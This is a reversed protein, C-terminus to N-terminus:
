EGLVFKKLIPILPAIHNKDTSAYAKVFNENTVRTNTVWDFTPFQETAQNPHSPEFLAVRVRQGGKVNYWSNSVTTLTGVWYRAPDPSGNLEASLYDTWGALTDYSEEFVTPTPSLNNASGGAANSINSIEGPSVGAQKFLIQLGIRGQNSIAILSLGKSCDLTESEAACEAQMRGLAFAAGTVETDGGDTTLYNGPGWPDGEAFPVASSQLGAPLCKLLPKQRSAGGRLSQAEKDARNLVSTPEQAADIVAQGGETRSEAVELMSRSIAGLRQLTATESGLFGQAASSAATVKMILPDSPFDLGTDDDGVSVAEDPYVLWENTNNLGWANCIPVFYDIKRGGLRLPVSAAKGDRPLWADPPLSACQLLTATQLGTRSRTAFSDCGVNPMWPSLVAGGIYAVWDSMPVYLASAFAPLIWKLLAYLLPCDGDSIDILTTPIRRSRIVDDYSKGYLGVFEVFNLSGEARTVNGFFAESYTFLTSFWSTGSVTSLHTVEPWLDSAAMAQAYAMMTVMARFGGGSSAMALPARRPPLDVAAAVTASAANSSCPFAEPFPLRFAPQPLIGAYRLVAVAILVVTTLACLLLCACHCAKHCSDCQSKRSVAPNADRDLPLRVAEQETDTM